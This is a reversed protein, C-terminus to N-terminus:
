SLHTEKSVRVRIANKGAIAKRGANKRVGGHRNSNVAEGYKIKPWNELTGFELQVGRPRRLAIALCARGVRYLPELPRVPELIM